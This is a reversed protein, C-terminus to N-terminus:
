IMMTANDITAPEVDDDNQLVGEVVDLEGVARFILIMVPTNMNADLKAIEDRYLDAAFSPSAVLDGVSAIVPLSSSAVTPNFQLSSGNTSISSKPKIMSFSAVVTFYFKDKDNDIVFLNYKVGDCVISISIKYYLKEIRKM